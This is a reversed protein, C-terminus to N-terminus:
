MMRYLISENHFHLWSIYAAVLRQLTPNFNSQSLVTSKDKYSPFPGIVKQSVILLSWIIPGSRKIAENNMM